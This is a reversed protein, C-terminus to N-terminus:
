FHKKAFHCGDQRLRLTNLPPFLYLIMSKLTNAMFLSKYPLEHLSEGFRKGKPQMIHTFWQSIERNKALSFLLAKINERIQTQVFPQAFFQSALSKLHWRVWWSIMTIIIWSLGYMMSYLLQVTEVLEKWFKFANYKIKGDRLSLLPCLGYYTNIQRQIWGNSQGDMGGDSMIKLNRKM